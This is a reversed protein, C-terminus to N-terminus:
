CARCNMDVIQQVVEYHFSIYGTCELRCVREEAQPLHGVQSRSFQMLYPRSTQLRFEGAELM